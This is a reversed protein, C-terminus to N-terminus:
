FLWTRPRPMPKCEGAKVLSLVCRICFWVASALWVGIVGFFGLFFGPEPPDSQGAQDFALGVMSGILLVFTGVFVALGIWFTRILYTYHTKEWAQTEAEGRWVYALVLGVFVSFGVFINLLYLLAVIVPRQLTVGTRPPPEQQRAAQTGEDM